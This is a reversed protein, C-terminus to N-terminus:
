SNKVITYVLLLGPTWGIQPHWDSCIRLSFRNSRYGTEFGYRFPNAQCRIVLRWADLLQYQMSLISALGGSFSYYFNGDLYLQSSFDKGIGIGVLADPRNLYTDTATSYRIFIGATYSQTTWQLAMGPIVVSQKRFSKAGASFLQTSAGLNLHQSLRIGYAISFDMSSFDKNGFHGASFAIGRRGKGGLTAYIRSESLGAVLFPRKSVLLIEADIPSGLLAPNLQAAASSKFLRSWFGSSAPYDQLLGQAFISNGSLFLFTNFLMKIM